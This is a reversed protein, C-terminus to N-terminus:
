KEVLKEWFNDIGSLVLSFFNLGLGRTLDTIPFVKSYIHKAKYYTNEHLYSLSELLKLVRTQAQNTKKIM